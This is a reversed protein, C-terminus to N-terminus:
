IWVGAAKSRPFLRLVGQMPPQSASSFKKDSGPNSGRIKWGTAYDDDDHKEDDGHQPNNIIIYM